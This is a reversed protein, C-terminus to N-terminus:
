EIPELSVSDGQELGDIVESQYCDMLGLKITRSTFSGNANEVWVMAQNGDVEFLADVSVLLVNEAVGAVMEVSGQMGLLLSRGASTQTDNLNVLGQVVDYNQVTVLMPEIQTVTGEFIRDPIADFVVTVPNGAKVLSMDTEDIYIVLGPREMDAITIFTDTTVTDGVVGAVEMVTGDMPAIITASALANEAIQLQLTANELEAEALALEDPDLGSVLVLDDYKDQTLALEAEALEKAARSTEAELVTYSQCYQWNLLATDRTKRFPTLKNLIYDEGYGSTGSNLYSEWENVDRQAYTYEYYYQETTEQPCRGAGAQVVNKEAEAYSKKAQALALQAKALNVASNDYLNDVIKQAANLELQKAVIEVQLADQNDLVALVEGASVVNGVEVNVVAVTGSTAFSLDAQDGAVLIGTGNTSLILSGRIVKTTTARAEASEIGTDREPKLFTWAAASGIVLIAIASILWIQKGKRSKMSLGKM